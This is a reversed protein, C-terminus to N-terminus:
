RRNDSSSTTTNVPPAKLAADGPLSTMVRASGGAIRSAPVVM